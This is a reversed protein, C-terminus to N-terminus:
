CARAAPAGEAHLLFSLDAGPDFDTVAGDPAFLRAGALGLLTMASGEVRLASGERVGLVSQGPNLVLFEAIRQARTEGQHGPPHADTFHANIQFPVLGLAALRPPEVIPMDNTTRITPCALLAGASWGVYPVGALARRRIADLAGSETLCRLLQFTNGGGVIIAAAGDLAAVPDRVRHLPDIAVDLSAFVAAVREAYADLSVTVAAHPVFVARSVGALAAELAARAHTLFRGEADRSSSLLLLRRGAPAADSM